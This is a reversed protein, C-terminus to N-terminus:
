RLQKVTIKSTLLEWESTSALLGYTFLGYKLFGYKLPGITFLTYTLLGFSSPWTHSPWILLHGLFTTYHQVQGESCSHERTISM